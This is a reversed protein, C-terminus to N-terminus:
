LVPAQGTANFRINGDIALNCRRQETHVNPRPPPHVLLRPRGPIGDVAACLEAQGEAGQRRDRPRICVPSILAFRWIDGRDPVELQRPGSSANRYRL